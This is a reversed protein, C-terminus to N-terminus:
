PAGLVAPDANAETLDEEGQYVIGGRNKIYQAEGVDELEKIQSGVHRVVHDTQRELHFFFTAMSAALMFPVEGRPLAVALTHLYEKLLRPRKVYRWTVRLLALTMGPMTRMRMRHRRAPKLWSLAGRVRRFYATPDYVQTLLARYERLIEVRPRATVFNLGATMQDVEGPHIVATSRNGKRMLLRGSDKLRDHLQTNPLATLLGVMAVGVRTEEVSKLIADAAGPKEEDFGLIFGAFVTMGAETIKRVSDTIPALTNQKKRTLRLLDPDPTEIGVFIYRFDCQHMLDLLESDNGLTLTAETSFFFPWNKSESWEIVRRLLEKAKKKNGIFNDDVFDVHGRHGTRYIAELERIVQDPHKYRPVRGYLEIIDCFECLFPCGRSLQTGIFLYDETKILDYRPVPAETLDPKVGDSRFVGSRAGERWANIFNPITIEGEDLVLFDANRYVDPQSTPDPGGVVVPKGHSKVLEILELAEIQQPIMASIMVLDFDGLAKEDLDRTNLDLLECHWDEPLLAAVTLLGLPPTNFKMGALRCAEAFNWFSFESSRPQLLLCRTPVGIRASM